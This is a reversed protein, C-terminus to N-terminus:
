DGGRQSNGTLDDSAAVDARTLHSLINVFAHGLEGDAVNCGYLLIDADDTLANGWSQIQQAYGSLNALNLLDDGLQLGGAQGHSLIQLSAIGQRGLLTQTIQAIADQAPDLVHVETGAAVGSLLQQYDAVGQDVFLLNTGDGSRRQSPTTLDVVQSRAQFGDPQSFGSQLNQGLTLRTSDM